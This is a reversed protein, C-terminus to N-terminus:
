RGSTKALIILFEDSGPPTDAYARVDFPLALRERAHRLMELFSGSECTHFHISYESEILNRAHIEVEDDAKM